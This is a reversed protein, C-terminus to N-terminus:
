FGRTALQVESSAKSEGDYTQAAGTTSNTSSKRSRTEDDQREDRNLTIETTMMIGNGNRIPSMHVGDDAGESGAMADARYSINTAKNDREGNFTELPIATHNATTHSRSPGSSANKSGTTMEVLRNLITFELKLKTSYVFSKYSTQYEYQNAYELALITIDLIIIIVNVLILHKMLRRSLRENGMSQEFRMLKVTEVIYFSSLITEQLFFITVQIKEMISYPKKWMEPTSSFSGYVMPIIAGHCIIADAIIMGLILRLRRRNRLVLHLRSWLVMSQGSVMCIWGAVILTCALYGLLPSGFYKVLFGACYLPIGWTAILVTWFYLGVYRKFTGWILFNLEIVNYFSIALFVIIITVSTYSDGDSGSGFGRANMLIAM